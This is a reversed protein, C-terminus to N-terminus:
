EYISSHNRQSPNSFKLGKSLKAMGDKTTAKKKKYKEEFKKEDTKKHLDNNEQFDDYPKLSFTNKENLFTYSSNDSKDKLIKIKKKM